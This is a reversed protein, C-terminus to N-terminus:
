GPDLLERIKGGIDESRMLSEGILAARVGAEVLKAVDSRTHIGSETVLVSRDEVLEALRLTTGLDTKFTRLNRNNIGLLSYSRHPFGIVRDRVRIFNEVDHVEILCTLNLETALIQLDILESTELCEAILLIADAGAARTEYVQYPDLIFDKRLIPLSVAERVAQLYELKGQFFKEDTLVSLADAGAEAYIRAIAVPDFDARIIGASPSAKKIEAILNMAKSGRRTVAHFFNRPRGLGAIQEKLSEVPRDAKRRAIELRKHAIIQELITEM